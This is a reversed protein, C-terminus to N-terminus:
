LRWSPAAKESENGCLRATEKRTHNRHDTAVDSGFSRASLTTLFNRTFGLQNDVEILLDPRKVRRQELASGIFGVEPAM